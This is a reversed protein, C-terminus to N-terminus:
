RNDGAIFTQASSCYGRLLLRQHGLLGPKRHVPCRPDGGALDPGQLEGRLTNLNAFFGDLFVVLDSTNRLPAPLTASYLFEPVIEHFGAANPSTTLLFHKM